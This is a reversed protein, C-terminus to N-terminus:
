TRQVGYSVGLSREACCTSLLRGSFYIAGGDPAAIRVTSLTRQASEPCTPKEETRGAAVPMDKQCRRMVGADVAAGKQTRAAV